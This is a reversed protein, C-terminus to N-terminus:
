KKLDMFPDGMLMEMGQSRLEYPDSGSLAFLRKMRSLHAMGLYSGSIKLQYYLTPTHAYHGRDFEDGTAALARSSGYLYSAALNNEVATGSTVKSGGPQTFGMTSCGDLSVLLGARTLAKADSSSILSWEEHAHTNVEVADYLAANMHSIFRPGEQWGEGVSGAANYAAIFAAANPYTELPWRVYCLNGGTTMCAAGTEGHPGPKGYFDLKSPTWANWLTEFDEGKDNSVFYFRGNSIIGGNYFSIVKALYPKLQAAWGDYSNTGSLGVPMWAIWLEPDPNIGKAVYDFDHAPVTFPGGVACNPENIPCAPDVAGDAYRKEFVGDLDEFYRPILRVQLLDNRSKYFSPVKINGMLLAGQLSGSYSSAQQTLYRKTRTYQWDDVNQVVQLGIRFGRRNEALARYQDITSSLRSYLRGDILIMAQTPPTKQALKSVEAASLAARYLSVEDISGSYANWSPHNGITVPRNSSQLARRPLSSPQVVESAALAGNVYLSMRWGDFVGVVHAWQNAAAPASISHAEGWQNSSSPFALAFTYRGDILALMFQDLAYWKSVLTSSGTIRTPKAWASVSLETTFRNNTADPIEIVGTAGSFAVASGFVGAGCSIGTGVANLGVYSGQECEDFQRLLVPAAVGALNASASSSLPVSGPEFQADGGECAALFLLAAGMILQQHRM